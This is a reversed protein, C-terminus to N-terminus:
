RILVIPERRRMGVLMKQMRYVVMLSSCYRWCLAVDGGGRISRVVMNM